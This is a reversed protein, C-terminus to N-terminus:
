NAVYVLKVVYRMYINQLWPYVCYIEEYQKGRRELLCANDAVVPFWPDVAVGTM